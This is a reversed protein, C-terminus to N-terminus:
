PSRCAAILAASATSTASPATSAATRSAPPASTTVASWPLRSIIRSGAVPWGCVACVTPGTGSTYTPSRAPTASRSPPESRSTAGVTSSRSPRGLGSAIVPRLRNAGPQHRARAALPPGRGREGAHEERDHGDRRQHRRGRMRLAGAIRLALQFLDIALQLFDGGLPAPDFALAARGAPLQALYVFLHARGRAAQALGLGLKRPLLRRQGLQTAFPVRHLSR